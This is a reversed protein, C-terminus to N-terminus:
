QLWISRDDTTSIYKQRKLFIPLSSVSNCLTTNSLSSEKLFFSIRAIKILINVLNFNCYDWGILKMIKLMVKRLLNAWVIRLMFHTLITSMLFPKINIKQCLRKRATSYKLNQCACFKKELKYKRGFILTM